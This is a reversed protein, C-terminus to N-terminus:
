GAPVRQRKRYPVPDAHGAEEFARLRLLCSDCRGCAEDSTAYCSWTHELPAKLALGRTVIQSKRMELLPTRIEIRTEDRTGHRIAKQFADFFSKRCDPYGSSDVEVAGVYLCGAGLAEAWATAAALLLGNRFPVYSAPVGPRDLKGEPLTAKPDTLASGGIEALVTLDAILRERVGYHGAINHFALLERYETRQGYNAHFFALELGYHHAEAAAVCSDLGGSVLCVAKGM